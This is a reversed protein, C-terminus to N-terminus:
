EPGFLGAAMIQLLIAIDGATAMLDQEQEGRAVVGTVAAAIVDALRGPKATVASRGEVAPTLAISLHERIMARRAAEIRRYVAPAGRRIDSMAPSQTQQAHGTLWEILRAFRARPTRAETLILRAETDAQRLATEAGAQLLEEKDDFHEYITRKSTGLERAIAEISTGTFGRTAFLRWAVAVVEGRSFNAM